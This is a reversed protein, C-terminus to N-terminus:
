EILRVTAEFNNLPLPQAKKYVEIYNKAMNELSFKQSWEKISDKDWETSFSTKIAHALAIDSREKVRFVCKENYIDEFASIDEFCIVPLGFSFAEIISLGFAEYISAIICYDSQGYYSSLENRLITGCLIVHNTLGLEKIATNITGDSVKDSGAILVKLNDKISDELLSYARVVQIQNKRKSIAGAVIIIKDTDNFHYKDRINIAPTNNNDKTFGNLVIHINDKYGKNNDIILKKLGSSVTTLPWQNQVALKFFDREFKQFYCYNNYFKTLPCDEDDLYANQGHMSIVVKVQTKVAALLAAYLEGQLHFVDPKYKKLLHIVYGTQIIKLIWRIKHRINIKHKVFLMKFLIPILFPRFYKIFLWYSRAEIHVKNRHKEKGYYDESYVHVDAKQMVLSNAIDFVAYSGGSVYKNKDSEPYFYSGTYVFIKM